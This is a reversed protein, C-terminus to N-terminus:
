QLRFTTVCTDSTAFTSIPGVATKGQVEVSFMLNKERPLWLEFFGNELTKVTRSLVHQGNTTKVLVKVAVGVLEGQCSSMYHTKCPHTHNIYPAIAVVMKDKPLNVSATKGGDFQFQVAQPTVFSTVSVKARGWANALSMAELANLQTVAEPSPTPLAKPQAFALGLMVLGITSAIWIKANM